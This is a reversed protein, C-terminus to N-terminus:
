TSAHPWADGRHPISPASVHIGLWRINPPPQSLAPTSREKKRPGLPIRLPVLLIVQPTHLGPLKQALRPPSVSVNTFKNPRALPDPDPM